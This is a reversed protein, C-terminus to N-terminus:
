HDQSRRFGNESVSRFRVVRLGLLVIGKGLVETLYRRLLPRDNAIPACGTVSQYDADLRAIRNSRQQDLYDRHTISNARPLKLYQLLRDKSLEGRRMDLELQHYLIHAKLSNHTASLRSAFSWLLDLHDRRNDLDNEWDTDSPAALKSLYANVFNTENLLQPRREVLQDLQSRLLKTHIDRSGFQVRRDRALDDAILAVLGDVDPLAIRQVLDRLQTEKLPRGVLPPLAHTELDSLDKRRLARALLRPYSILNSDLTSPLRSARDAVERQHNFSLGLQRQLYRLTSAQDQPYTLLAQRHQIETVRDTTGHRDVWQELFSEVRQFQQELQFHLCHFYYYDETGPILEDLVSARDNALASDSSSASKRALPQHRNPRWLLYSSACSQEDAPREQRVAVTGTSAAFISRVHQRIVQM